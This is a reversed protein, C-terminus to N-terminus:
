ALLSKLKELLFDSTLGSDQACMLVHRKEKAITVLGAHKALTNIFFSDKPDVVGFTNLYDLDIDLIYNQCLFTELSQFYPCVKFFHTFAQQLFESELLQDYENVKPKEDNQDRLAAFCCIKYRQFITEDTDMANQAVVFASSVIDTNLAAMIHEDHALKQIGERISNSDNFSMAGLLNKQQRHFEETNPRFEKLHMRFAASTDTHHDLTLLLPAQKLTRRYEAWYTLVEHHNEVIVMVVWVSAIFFGV